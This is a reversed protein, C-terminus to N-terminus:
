SALKSIENELEMRCIGPLIRQHVVDILRPWAMAWEEATMKDFAISRILMARTGDPLVIMADYLGALGKLSMHVAEVSSFDIRQGNVDIGDCNAFILNCLAFYRRHWKVSRTNRSKWDVEIAEGPTLKRTLLESTDCAPALAGDLRKRLFVRM